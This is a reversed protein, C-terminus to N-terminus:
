SIDNHICYTNWKNYDKHPTYCKNFAHSLGKHNSKKKLGSGM